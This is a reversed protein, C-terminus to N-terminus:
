LLYISGFDSKSGYNVMTVVYELRGGSVDDPGLCPTTCIFSHISMYCLMVMGFVLCAVMPQLCQDLVCRLCDNLSCFDKGLHVSLGFQGLILLFDAFRDNLLAERDKRELAEFRPDDGWVKSFSDYTTAHSIEQM